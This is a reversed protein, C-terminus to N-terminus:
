KRKLEVPETALWRRYPIYGGSTTQVQCEILPGWTGTLGSVELQSHCSAYSLWMGLGVLPAALGVIMGVMIGGVILIDNM